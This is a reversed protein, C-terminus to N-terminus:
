ADTYKIQMSGNLYVLRNTNSLVQGGASSVLISCQVIRTKPDVTTDDYKVQKVLYKGYNIICKQNYKFDNNNFSQNAAQVGTGSYSSYGLKFSKRYFVRYRDTNIPKMTDYLAGTLSPNDASSGNQYIGALTTTITTPAEIQYFLLVTVVLPSPIPNFTVDYPASTFMMSLKASKIKIRNGVRGNQSLSQVCNLYASSPSIPFCGNTSFLTGGYVGLLTNPAWSYDLRKTEINKSMISKVIKTVSKVGMSPDRKKGTKITKSVGRKKKPFYKRGAM